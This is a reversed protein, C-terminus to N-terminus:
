QKAEKILKQANKPLTPALRRSCEHSGAVFRDGQQYVTDGRKPLPESGYASKLIEWGEGDPSVLLISKLGFANTNSSVAIVTFPKGEPGRAPVKVVEPQPPLAKLVATDSPFHFSSELISVEVREFAAQLQELTINGSVKVWRRPTTSDLEISARAPLLHALHALNM